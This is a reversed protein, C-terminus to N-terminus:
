RADELGVYGVTPGCLRAIGAEAVAHANHKWSSLGLSAATSATIPNQACLATLGDPSQLNDRESFRMRTVFASVCLSQPVQGCMEMGFPAGFDRSAIHEVLLHWVAQRQTHEDTFYAASHGMLTEMIMSEQGWPTADLLPRGERQLAHGACKDRYPGAAECLAVATQGTAELADSVVFFCEHRWPDGDVLRQCRQRAAAEGHHQAVASATMAVCEGRLAPAEIRDCAGATLPHETADIYRDADSSPACGMAMLLPWHM